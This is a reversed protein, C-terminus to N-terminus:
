NWENLYDSMVAYEADSVSEISEINVSYGRDYDVLRHKDNPDQHVDYDREVVRHYEYKVQQRDTSEVLHQTFHEMGGSQERLTMLWYSM